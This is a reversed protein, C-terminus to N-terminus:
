RVPQVVVGADSAPATQLNTDTHVPATTTPTAQSQAPTQYGALEEETIVEFVRVVKHVDNVGRAIEAARQAERATLLGMLYVVQQETIVKITNAQLDKADILSAKVKSTIFADKTRQSLASVMSVIQLENVVSRM